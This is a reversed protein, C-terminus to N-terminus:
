FTVEKRGFILMGYDAVGMQPQFSGNAMKLHHEAISDLSAYFGTNFGGYSQDMEQLVATTNLVGFYFIIWRARCWDLFKNNYRGPGLDVKLMICKGSTDACDRLIHRINEAYKMFEPTDM